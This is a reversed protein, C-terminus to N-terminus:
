AAARNRPVRVSKSAGKAREASDVGQPLAAAWHKRRAIARAARATAAMGSDVGQPLAAAWAALDSERWRVANRRVRVPAPFLGLRIDTYIASPKRATFDVVDGLTFLREM